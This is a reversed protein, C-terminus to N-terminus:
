LISVHNIMLKVNENANKIEIKVGPHQKAWVRFVEDAFGQGITEVGELDMTIIKFRDLNILMRRAQSRSVCTGTTKYLRVVVNTKEFQFEDNTYEGFVQALDTKSRLAIWCEISTGTLSVSDDVFVDHVTNDFTLRKSSGKIVLRDAAKSTFFIGEGSHAHPATTEKGKLLDQIADMDSSLKRTERINRFIGIGWDRIKFNIGNERREVVLDIKGSRSHEIANNLMETFAYELIKRVNKRTHLLIGSATEIDKLILDEALNKNRLIKHVRLIGEKATTTAASNARVYRAQNAKGVLVLTGDRCLDRFFRHVYARSFGSEQIIESPKVEGRRKLSRLIQDRIDM